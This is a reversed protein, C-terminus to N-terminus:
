RARWRLDGGIRNSKLLEQIRRMRIFKSGAFDNESLGSQSVSNIIEKAGRRIDWRPKLDQMISHIKAFSVKYSRSDKSHEGTYEVAAGSVDSVTEAMDKVTYNQEDFGANIIQKKVLDEPMELMESFIHALDRVHIMPRWPSGDSMVRIKGSTAACGAFNNLVLDFRMKPSLGYVTPNRLIIPCFPGSTMKILDTETSLKSQAYATLPNPQINEDAVGEAIGYISCSSSFIFRRIGAKEAIKALRVSAIHNIQQTISPNIEGLPDNSLAALHIVADFGEREVDKSELDRIDKKIRRTEEYEYLSCGMFYETDLGVIEHGRNKLEEIMVSGIYGDDGTLLIKM